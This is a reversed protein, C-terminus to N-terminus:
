LTGRTKFLICSVIPAGIAWVLSVGLSIWTDTTAKALPLIDPLAGFAVGPMAHDIGKVIAQLIDPGFGSAMGVVMPILIFLGLFLFVSLSGRKTVTGCCFGVIVTFVSSVTALLGQLVITAAEGTGARGIGIVAIVAFALFSFAAALVVWPLMRALFLRIRDPVLLLTARITGDSHDRAAFAAAYIGFCFSILSLPAGFGLFAPLAGLSEAGEVGEVGQNSVENAGWDLVATMGSFLVVAAVAFVACTIIRRPKLAVRRMEASFVSGFGQKAAM